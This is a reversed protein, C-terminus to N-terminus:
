SQAKNLVSQSRARPGHLATFITPRKMHNIAGLAVTATKVKGWNKRAQESQQANNKSSAVAAAASKPEPVKILRLLVGFPLSGAAILICQLWQEKSLPTTSAFEGGYAVIMYQMVCTFALIFLFVPNAHIRSFVNIEDYIRRSNIENFIQCLVFLNFILTLHHVSDKEVGFFQHGYYLVWFNAALQYIAQGIINKWMTRTILPDNKGYPKRDLLEETPSETALALAAMTDMILNVWLLQVPKLPSQGEENTVAGVFALTVAVVNVTLQFQLFKRISDYVNRGWMVAAVISKFNDDMIIIDSAEKAVETGAIGMAFGVHADKLAPADNTGDGTVAVVEGLARLRNVLLRKDTPSSRAMVQLKPILQDRAKPDMSRFVPGEIAVGGETLIKCEKAIAKATDINDGTVMRVVIGAKQCLHVAHPVEDRVPDKIGVVGILTLNCELDKSDWDEEEQDYDVYALGITRLADCAMSQIVDQLEAVTEEELPVEKGEPTLVRKCLGLVIESAGKCFLRYQGSSSSSSSSSGSSTSLKVLTSMRKRASSFPILHVAPHQKRVTEYVCGHEKGFNLLACETKSGIFEINGKDTKGEYATSNVAVGFTFCEVVSAALNGKKKTAQVDEFMRGAIWGKMVTMQNKTLTGTKDSCITTAGGMTECAALQRVLNQDKLMKLMSYALAITVALPLGEPVAVVVITISTIFYKVVVSLMHMEFTVGALYNVVAFKILLVVLILVAAALGMQAIDEALSELKIELPTRRDNDEEDEEENEENSDEAKAKKKKSLLHSMIRGSESNTGIAVVLMRGIGELIKCGSLLYPKKDTKKVADTEGTLSSEDAALEHGDIFIGDACLIDGTDIIVVDGVNIDYVSVQRQEGARIVKVDKNKKRENLKRFQKEKQFDNLAAVMVVIVVATLIATGEIWGHSPDEMIGLVLSVAAAIMLMILTKDSLGDLVMQWLSTMEPEPLRNQGFLERRTKFHNDAESQSLGTEINSGLSEALGKVGGLQQLGDYDRNEVLNVLQNLTVGYKRDGDASSGRAGSSSM